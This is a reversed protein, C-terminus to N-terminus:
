CVLSTTIPFGQDPLVVGVGEGTIVRRGTFGVNQFFYTGPSLALTFSSFFPALTTLGMLQTILRVMTSHFEASLEGM